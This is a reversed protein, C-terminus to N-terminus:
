QLLKKRKADYDLSDMLEQLREKSDKMEQEFRAKQIETKTNDPRTLFYAVVSTIILIAIIFKMDKSLLVRM